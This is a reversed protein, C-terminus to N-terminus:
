KGTVCYYISYLTDVAVVTVKLKTLFVFDQDRLNVKKLHFQCFVNLSNLSIVMVSSILFYRLLLDGSM